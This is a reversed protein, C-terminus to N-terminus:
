LQLVLVDDPWLTVTFCACWDVIFHEKFFPQCGQLTCMLNIQQWKCVNQMNIFSIFANDVFLVAVKWHESTLGGNQM